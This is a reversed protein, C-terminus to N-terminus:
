HENKGFLACRSVLVVQSDDFLDSNFELVDSLMYLILSFGCIYFIIFALTTFLLQGGVVNSFFNFSLCSKSRMAYNLIIM